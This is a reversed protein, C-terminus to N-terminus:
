ILEIKADKRGNINKLRNMYGIVFSIRELKHKKNTRRGTKM